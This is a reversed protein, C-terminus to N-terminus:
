PLEPRAFKGDVEVLMRVWEEFGDVSFAFPQSPTRLTSSAVYVGGTPGFAFDHEWSDVLKGDEIESHICQAFVLFGDGTVLPYEPDLLDTATGGFGFVDVIWGADEFYAGAYRELFRVYSEDARVAPNDALFQELEPRLGPVADTPHAPGHGMALRTRRELLDSLEDGYTV